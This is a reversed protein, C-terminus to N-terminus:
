RGEKKTRYGPTIGGNHAQPGPAGALDKVTGLPCASPEPIFVAPKPFTALYAKLMRKMKALEDAGPGAGSGALGTGCGCGSVLLPVSGHSM